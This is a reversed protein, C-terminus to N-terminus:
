YFYYDSTTLPIRFQSQLICTHLKDFVLVIIKKKLSSTTKHNLTIYTFPLAKLWKHAQVATPTFLRQQKAKTVCRTKSNLHKM